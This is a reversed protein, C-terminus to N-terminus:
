GKGVCHHSWWKDEFQICLDWGIAGEGTGVMVLSGVSGRFFGKLLDGRWKGRLGIADSEDVFGM